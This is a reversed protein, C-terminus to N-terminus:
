LRMFCDIAKEYEGMGKYALGALYFINWWNQHKSVLRLFKELALEYQGYTLYNLGQEFDVDDVILELQERIEQIREQDKDLKIYHEWILQAKM